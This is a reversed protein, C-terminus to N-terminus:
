YFVRYNYMDWSSSVILYGDFDFNYYFDEIVGDDHYLIVHGSAVENWEFYTTGYMENYYVGTGGEYFTYQEYEGAYYDREYGNEGVATMRWTGLLEHYYGDYYHSECGQLALMLVCAVLAAQISKLAKM